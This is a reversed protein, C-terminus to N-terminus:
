KGSPRWFTRGNVAGGCVFCAAGSRTRFLIDGFLVGDAGVLAANRKRERRASAPCSRTERGLPVIRSGALLLFGEPTERARALRNRHFACFADGDGDGPAPAEAAKSATVPFPLANQLAIQAFFLKLGSELDLGARELVTAATKVLAADLRPLPVTKRSPM